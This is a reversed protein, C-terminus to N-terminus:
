TTNICVAVLESPNASHSASPPDPAADFSQDAASSELARLAACLGDALAPPAQLREAEISEVLGHLVAAGTRPDLEPAM